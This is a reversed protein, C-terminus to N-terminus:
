GDNSGSPFPHPGDFQNGWRRPCLAHMTQSGLYGFLAAGAGNNPANPVGRHSQSLSDRITVPELGLHPDFEDFLAGLRPKVAAEAHM